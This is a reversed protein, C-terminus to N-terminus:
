KNEKWTWAYWVIYLTTTIEVIAFFSYYLAPAGVFLSGTVALTKIIGASINLIRNSKYKLIKSLFVMAIPIEMLIAGLFLFTPTM